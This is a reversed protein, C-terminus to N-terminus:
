FARIPRIFFGNNNKHTLVKRDGDFASSETFDYIYNRNYAGQEKQFETSSMYGSFSESKFNGIVERHLYMQELENISPLFWDEYGNLVLEDCLKAGTNPEPCNAVINQTNQKGYGIYPYQAVPVLNSYCGWSDPFTEIDTPAAILGHEGTEDIYFIIGGQYEDGIALCNNQQAILHNFSLIFISIFTITTIFKHNM